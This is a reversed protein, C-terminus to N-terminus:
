LRRLEMRSPCPCDKPLGEFDSSLEAERTCSVRHLGDGLSQSPSRLKTGVHYLPHPPGALEPLQRCFGHPCNRQSPSGLQQHTARGTCALRRYAPLWTRISRRWHTM